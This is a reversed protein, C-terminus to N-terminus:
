QTTHTKKSKLKVKIKIHDKIEIEKLKIRVNIKYNLKLTSHIAVFSSILSHFSFLSSFYRGFM